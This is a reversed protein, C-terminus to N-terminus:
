LKGQGAILSGPRYAAKADRPDAMGGGMVGIILPNEM